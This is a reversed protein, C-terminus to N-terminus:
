ATELAALRAEIADFREALQQVARGIVPIFEQYGVSYVDEGKGDNTEDDNHYAHYQLGAFDVGTRDCLEKLEQAVVGLHYRKGAKTAAAHGEADFERSVLTKPSRKPVKVKRTSYVPQGKRNKKGTFVPVEEDIMVPQGDDGLEIDDVEETSVSIYSERYNMRFQRFRVEKLFDLGLAIDSIDTKDRADSRDQVAGFAYTTTGSAGLQVQNTGTCVAAYGFASSGSYKADSLAGFQSTNNETTLTSGAAYGWAAGLSGSSLLQWCGHGAGTNFTGTLAGLSATNNGLHVSFLEGSAGRACFAGGAVLNKLSTRGTSAGNNDVCSNGFLTCLEITGGGAGASVGSLDSSLVSSCYLAIKAGYGTSNKVVLADKFCDTGDGDAYLVEDANQFLRFGRGGASYSKVGEKTMCNGGHLFTLTADNDSGSLNNAGFVHCYSGDLNAGELTRVPSRGPVHDVGVNSGFLATNSATRVLVSQEFALLYDRLDAMDVDTGPVLISVITM